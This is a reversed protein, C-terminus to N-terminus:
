SLMEIIRHQIICASIIDNNEEILFRVIEKLAVISEPGGKIAAVALEESIDKNPRTGILAEEVLKIVSTEQKNNSIKLSRLHIGCMGNALASRKCRSGAHTTVNCPEKKVKKPVIGFRMKNLLQHVRQRSVGYRDAIQQIPMGYARLSLIAQHDESSLM